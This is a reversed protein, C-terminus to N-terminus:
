EVVRGEVQATLVRGAAQEALVFDILADRYMQTLNLRPQKELFACKDGGNAVFDTLGIKYIKKLVLPLGHIRIDQPKGEVIQYRVTHSIPWGGYDAMREFLRQVVAGPAELIVLKNDFPMLEFLKGRTIPGPPLHSIRLGGYNVVAFDIPMQAYAECQAHMVDAAWNGLTSEPKAKRLDMAVEGIVESMQTDLQAKYPALLTVIASDEAVTAESAIRYNLIQTSSPALSRQCAMVGLLGLLCCFLLNRKMFLSYLPLLATRM